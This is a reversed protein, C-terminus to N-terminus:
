IVPFRTLHSINEKNVLANIERQSIKISNSQEYCLTAHANSLSKIICACYYFLPLIKFRNAANLTAGPRKRDISFPVAGLLTTQTM